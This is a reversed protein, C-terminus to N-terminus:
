DVPQTTAIAAIGYVSIGQKSLTRIAEQCTSGTTYIDDLLIVGQKPKSRCFGAGVRMSNALTQRRQEPSLQNLAETDRVRELGRPELPYGTLECFSKALLEAQNFGRKRQKDPYMPIPVVTLGQAKALPSQLWTEALFYGLPQALEPCNQYKMVAIARKMVGGYRGWILVPPTEQLLRQKVSFKQRQLQRDCNPCLFPKGPRDCLPCTPKLFLNVWGKVMAPWNGMM